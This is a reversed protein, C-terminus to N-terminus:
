PATELSRRGDGALARRVCDRLLEKSRLLISKVGGLSLGARAAVVDRPLDLGFRLRLVERSRRPLRGLCGRLADLSAAGADARVFSAWARDLPVLAPRAAEDRVSNLLLNRAITCLYSRVGAPRRDRPPRRLLRLFTEQALDDVRDGPCGLYRLYSTALRQHTRVLDLIEDDSWDAPGPAGPTDM